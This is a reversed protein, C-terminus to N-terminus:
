INEIKWFQLTILRVLLLNESDENNNNMIIYGSNILDYTPNILVMM